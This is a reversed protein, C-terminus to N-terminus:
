CAKKYTRNKSRSNVSLHVASNESVSFITHVDMHASYRIIVSILLFFFEM